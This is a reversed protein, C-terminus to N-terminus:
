SDVKGEGGAEAKAKEAIKKVVTSVGLVPNTLTMVAVEWIDPAMLALTRFSLHIVKENAEEAKENEDEIIEVAERVEQAATESSFSKAEIAAYIHTFADAIKKADIGTQIDGGAINQAQVSAGPGIAAGPGVSGSTTISGMQTSAGYGEGSSLFDHGKNTIGTLIAVEYKDGLGTVDAGEALGAKFLLYKHHDIQEKSFKSLDVKEEGQLELLLLRM